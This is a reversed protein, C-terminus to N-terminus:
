HSQSSSYKETSENEAEHREKLELLATFRELEERSEKSLSRIRELFPDNDAALKGTVIYSIDVNFFDAIKKMTKIDPERKETEYMGLAGSSINLEVALQRQSIGKQMRLAAINQGYM